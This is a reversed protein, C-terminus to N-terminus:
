EGLTIDKRDERLCDTDCYWYEYVTVIDQGEVLSEGCCHCYGYVEPERDDPEAFRSM